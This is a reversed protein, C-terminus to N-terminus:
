EISMIKIVETLKVKLDIGKTVYKAVAEYKDAM